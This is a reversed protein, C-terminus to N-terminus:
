MEQPTVKKFRRTFIFTMKKCHVYVTFISCINLMYQVTDHFILYIYIYYIYDKMYQM